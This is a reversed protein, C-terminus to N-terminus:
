SDTSNGYSIQNLAAGSIRPTPGGRRAIENGALRARKIRKKKGKEEKGEREKTRM